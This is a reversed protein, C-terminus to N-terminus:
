EPFRQRLWVDSAPFPTSSPFDAGNCGKGEKSMANGDQTQTRYVFSCTLTSHLAIELSVGLFCTWRLVIQSLSQTCGMTSVFLIYCSDPKYVSHPYWRMYWERKKKRKLGAGKGGTKPSGHGKNSKRKEKRGKVTHLTLIHFLQTAALAWAHSLVVCTMCFASHSVNVDDNGHHM